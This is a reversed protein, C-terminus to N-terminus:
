ARLGGPAPLAFSFTAGAGDASEAWVRGGHRVVVRQVIALGVGTGEYESTHHLRQFVGFLKSAYRMDFGVGNDRVRYIYDDGSARADVTIRAVDCTATFKIANSLLNLVVQYMMRADGSTAPVDGITIEIVRDRHPERAEAAAREFLLKMNMLSRTVPERTVRSFALLDEILAAMRATSTRVVGLLRIGEADLVSAYEDALIRSFGDIARLPARLDHSVSYAFAELERNAATLDEQTQTMRAAMGHFARDVVAIEDEGALPEHLPEVTGLRHANEAVVSLRHDITRFFVTAIAAAILVNLVVAGGVTVTLLANSRQAAAQRTRALQEEERVFDNMQARFVDTWRAGDRSATRAFAEAVRGMAVLRVNQMNSAVFNQLTANLEDVRHRQRPNDAVTNRLEDVRAPAEYAAESWTRAFGEEQTIIFGRVASEGGLVLSNIHFADRLVLQSHLALGRDTLARRSVVVLLAALILQVAVPIAMLVLIQRSISRNM